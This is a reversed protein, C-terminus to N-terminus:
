LIDHLDANIKFSGTIIAGHWDSERELYFGSVKSRVKLGFLTDLKEYVLSLEQILVCSNRCNLRRTIHQQMCIFLLYDFGLM